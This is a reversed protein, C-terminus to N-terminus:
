MPDETGDTEYDAPPLTSTHALSHEGHCVRQRALHAKCDSRGECQCWQRDGARWKVGHCAWPPPIENVKVPGNDNRLGQCQMSTESKGGSLQQRFDNDRQLSASRARHRVCRNMLHKDIRTESMHKKEMKTREQPTHKRSSCTTPTRRLSAYSPRKTSEHVMGGVTEGIQFLTLSKRERQRSPERKDKQKDTDWDGCTQKTM